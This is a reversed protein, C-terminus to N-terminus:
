LKHTLDLQGQEIQTQMAIEIGGGAGTHLFDQLLHPGLHRHDMRRGPIAKGIAKRVNERTTIRRAIVAVFPRFDKGGVGKRGELFGAQEIRDRTPAKQAFDQLDPTRPGRRRRELRKAPTFRRNIRQQLM